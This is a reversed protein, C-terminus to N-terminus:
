SFEGAESYNCRMMLMVSRKIDYFYLFVTHGAHFVTQKANQHDNDKKYQEERRLHRDGRCSGTKNQPGIHNDWGKQGGHDHCGKQNLNLSGGEDGTQHM